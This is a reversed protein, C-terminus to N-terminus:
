EHARTVEHHACMERVEEVPRGLFEAIGMHFREQPVTEGYEWRMITLQSVGLEAAVWARSRGEALRKQKLEEGLKEM